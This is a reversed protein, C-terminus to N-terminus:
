YDEWWGGDYPLGLRAAEGETRGDRRWSVYWCGGVACTWFGKGPCASDSGAKDERVAFGCFCPGKTPDIGRSDNWTIWGKRPNTKKCNRCIYYSRGANDNRNDRRVEDPSEPIWHCQRCQPAFPLPFISIPYEITTQATAISPKPSSHYQHHNPQHYNSAPTTVVSPPTVISPTTVVSPAKIHSPLTIVSPASVVSAIPKSQLSLSHFSQSLDDVQSPGSSHVFM